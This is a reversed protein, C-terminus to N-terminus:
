VELRAKLSACFPLKPQMIDNEIWINSVRDIFIGSCDISGALDVHKHGKKLMRSM